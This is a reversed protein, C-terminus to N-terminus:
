VIHVAGSLNIVAQQWADRLHASEVEYRNGKSDRFKFLKVRNVAVGASFRKARSRTCDARDITQKRTYRRNKM